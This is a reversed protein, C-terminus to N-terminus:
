NLDYSIDGETHGPTHIATLYAGDGMEIKQGDEVLNLKISEGTVKYGEGRGIHAQAGTKKALSVLGSVHDAHMHTDVVNTIKLGQEEALKLASNEIDCTSDIVTASSCRSIVYSLCGKSIRRLQWMHLAAKLPTLLRPLM